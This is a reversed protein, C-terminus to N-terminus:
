VMWNMFFRAIPPPSSASMANPPPGHLTSPQISARRSSASDVGVLGRTVAFAWCAQAPESDSPRSHSITARCRTRNTGSEQRDKHPGAHHASRGHIGDLNRLRSHEAPQRVTPLRPEVGELGAAISRGDGVEAPNERAQVNRIAAPIAPLLPRGDVDHEAEVIEGAVHRLVRIEPRCAASDGVADGAAPERERAVVVRQRRVVAGVVEVAARGPEVLLEPLRRLPRGFPARRDFQFDDRRGAVLAVGAPERGAADIRERGGAFQPDLHRGRGVRRRDHVEHVMRIPIEGALGRARDGIVLQRHRGIAVQRDVRRADGRADERRHLARREIEAGLPPRPAADAVRDLGEGGVGSRARGAAHVV